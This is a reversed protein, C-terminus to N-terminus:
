GAIVIEHAAVGMAIVMLTTMTFLLRVFQPQGALHRDRAIAALCALSLTLAFASMTAQMM